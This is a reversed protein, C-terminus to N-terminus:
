KGYGDPTPSGSVGTPASAQPVYVEVMAGNIRTQLPPLPLYAPRQTIAEGHANFRGNHCPCDFTSAGQNWNVICGMHTCAASFAAFTGDGYRVIHGVLNPTVFRVANGPTLKALAMVPFWFGAEGVIATDWAKGPASGSTSSKEAIVGGVVGAALGAATALTTRLLNRRSAGRAKSTPTPSPLVAPQSAAPFWEQELESRLRRAFDPRPEAVPALTGRLLAAMQVAEADEPTLDAPLTPRREAQLDAIYAEMMEEPRDGQPHTGNPSHHNDM